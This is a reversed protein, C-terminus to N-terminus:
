KAAEAAQETAEQAAKLKGEPSNKIMHNIAAALGIIAATVAVIILALWGLALLASKCSAVLKGFLSTITPGLSSIATGAVLAINGIKALGDGLEELGLSSFLGGLISISV